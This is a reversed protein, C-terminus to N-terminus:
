PRINLMIAGHRDSDRSRGALMPDSAGVDQGGHDVGPRGLDDSVGEAVDPPIISTDLQLDDSDRIISTRVVKRDDM